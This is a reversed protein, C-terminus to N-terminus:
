DSRTIEQRQYANLRGQSRANDLDTYIAHWDRWGLGKHTKFEGRRKPGLWNVMFRCGHPPTMRTKVRDVMNVSFLWRYVSRMQYISPPHVRKENSSPTTNKESFSDEAPDSILGLRAQLMSVFEPYLRQVFDSLTVFHLYQKDALVEEIPKGKYRGFPVRM